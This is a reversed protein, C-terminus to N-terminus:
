GPVVVDTNDPDNMRDMIDQQTVPTIDGAVIEYLVTTALHEIITLDCGDPVSQSTHDTNEESYYTCYVEGDKVHVHAYEM